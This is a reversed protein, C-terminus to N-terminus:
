TMGSFPFFTDKVKVPLSTRDAYKQLLYLAKKKKPGALYPMMLQLLEMAKKGGVQREL